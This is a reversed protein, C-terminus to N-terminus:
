LRGSRSLLRLTTPDYRPKFMDIVQKPTWHKGYKSSTPHSVEELYSYAKDLNRQTLAIRMPLVARRDLQDLKKWGEPATNRKEHLAYNGTPSAVASAALVAVTLIDSFRMKLSSRVSPPQLSRLTRQQDCRSPDQWRRISSHM